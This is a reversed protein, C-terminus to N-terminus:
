RGGRGTLDNLTWDFPKFTMQWQNKSLFEKETTLLKPWVFGLVAREIDSREQFPERVAAAYAAVFEKDRWSFIPNALLKNQERDVQICQPRSACEGAVETLQAELQGPAFAESRLRGGDVAGRGLAFYVRPDHFASLTTQEIQDLTTNRGAVRHPTKEFAGPIQRISHQPYESSRQAIPYHEIVTELVLANYANLWFAIQADRPESEISASAVQALYADLRRRDAKLARYYVFGDRVYMDLIADFAKRRAADSNEQARPAAVTTLAVLICVCRILVHRGARRIGIYRGAKAPRVAQRIGIYRGAKAPRIRSVNM